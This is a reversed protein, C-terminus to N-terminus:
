QAAAMDDGRYGYPTGLFPVSDLAPDADFLGNTSIPVTVLSRRVRAAHGDCFVANQSEAHPDDAPLIRRGHFDAREALIVKRSPSRVLHVGVLQRYSDIDNLADPNDPDWLRWDTVLAGSYYYSAEAGAGPNIKLMDVGGGGIGYGNRLVAPCTWPAAGDGEEWYTGILGGFWLSVQELYGMVIYATAGCEFSAAPARLDVEFLNPYNGGNQGADLEVGQALSRM